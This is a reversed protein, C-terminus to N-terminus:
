LTYGLAEATRCQERILALERRGLEVGVEPPRKVLTEPRMVDTDLFDSIESQVLEPESFWREYRIPLVEPRSLHPLIRSNIYDYMRIRRLRVDSIRKLETNMKRNFAIEYDHGQGLAGGKRKFSAIVEVPHRLCVLFRTTPLLDLYRWFAAWEVGLVYDDGTAVPARQPGERRLLVEGDSRLADVQKGRATNGTRDIEERLSNFLQAPPLRMGDWPEIVTLAVPPQNLLASVLTKGTSQCGCIIFDREDPSDLPSTLQDPDLTLQTLFHRWRWYRPSAVHAVRRGARVLERSKM